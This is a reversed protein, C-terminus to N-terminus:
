NIRGALGLIQAIKKLIWYLYSYYNICSVVKGGFSLKFNNIGILSVDRTNQTYGGFDFVKYGMAKFYLIDKVVLLKHARGVLSKDCDEKLRITGSHLGIAVLMDNDVLYSHAALLQGDLEAFSM